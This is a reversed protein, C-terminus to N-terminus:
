RNTKTSEDFLRSHFTVGGQMLKIAFRPCSDVCLACQICMSQNITVSLDDEFHIAGTPCVSVCKGCDICLERDLEILSGSHVNIGKTKFCQVVEDAVEDPVEVLMEGRRGDAYARLINILTKKELIISALIPENLTEDSYRILIKM